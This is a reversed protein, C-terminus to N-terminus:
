ERPQSSVLQGYVLLRHSAVRVPTCTVLMIRPEDGGLRQLRRLMEEPEVIDIQDVEYTYRTTKDELIITDGTEVENLRNFHRGYTYMRHGLFVSLGPQGFDASPSYHGIAVRLNYVTSGEAVPMTLDIKDILMRGIAKVEVKEAIPETEVPETEAATEGSQRETNTAAPQTEELEVYEVDEGEVAWADPDIEIIGDGQEFAADLNKTLRDQQWHTIMPSIILYIGIAAILVILIDLVIIIPKRKKHAM